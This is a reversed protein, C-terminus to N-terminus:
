SLTLLALLKPTTAPLGELDDLLSVRFAPVSGLLTALRAFTAGIAAHGGSHILNPTLLALARARELPEVELAAGREDLLVIAGVPCPGPEGGSPDGVLDIRRRGDGDQRRVRLGRAGPFATAGDEDLGIAIGDESLVRCGAEGLARALTSKGRLTPGCFLAARGGAEVASAHLVLDGRIALLVCIATSVLRHELLEADGDRGDVVVRGEGPDLLFSATPPLEILCRGEELEYSAYWRRGEDDILRGAPEQAPARLPESAAEIRLKGRGGAAANLRRLPLESEITFGYLSGM